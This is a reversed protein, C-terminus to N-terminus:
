GQGRENHFHAMAKLCATYTSKERCRDLIARAMAVAEADSLVLFAQDGKPTDHSRVTVEIQDGRPNVSIYGVYGEGTQMRTLAYINESAM